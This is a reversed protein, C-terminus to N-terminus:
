RSHRATFAPARWHPRASVMGHCGAAPDYHRQFGVQILHEKEPGLESALQAAQGVKEFLPKEVLVPIGHRVFVLVDEFHDAIRSAVVAADLRIEELMNQSSSFTQIKAVLEADALQKILDLTADLAPRHRDGIALFEIRDELHLRILNEVHIRGMRGVGFIGVRLKDEVM